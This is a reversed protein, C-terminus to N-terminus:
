NEEHRFKFCLVVISSNVLLNRFSWSAVGANGSCGEFRCWAVGRGIVCGLVVLFLTIFSLGFVFYDYIMRDKWIHNENIKSMCMNMLWSICHFKSTFDFIQHQVSLTWLRCPSYTPIQLLMPLWWQSKELGHRVEYDERLRLEEEKGFRTRKAKSSGCIKLNRKSKTPGLFFVKIKILRLLPNWFYFTECVQIFTKRTTKGQKLPTGGRFSFVPVGLRFSTQQFM